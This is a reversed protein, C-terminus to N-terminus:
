KPMPLDDRAETMAAATEDTTIIALYKTKYGDDLASQYEDEVESLEYSGFDDFWAKRHYDWICLTHYKRTM